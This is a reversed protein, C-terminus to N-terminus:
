EIANFYFTEAIRDNSIVRNSRFEHLSLFRTVISVFKKASILSGRKVYKKGLHRKFM